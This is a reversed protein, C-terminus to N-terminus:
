TGFVMVRKGFGAGGLVGLIWFFSVRAFIIGDGVDGGGGGGVRRLPFGTWRMGGSGAVSLDCTDGDGIPEDNEDDDLGDGESEIPLSNVVFSRGFAGGSSVFM